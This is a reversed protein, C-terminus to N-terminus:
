VTVREIRLGNPKEAERKLDRAGGKLDFFAVLRSFFDHGIFQDLKSLLSLVVGLPKAVAHECPDISRCLLSLRLAPAHRKFAGDLGGGLRSMVTSPGDDVSRETLRGLAALRATVNAPSAIRPTGIPHRNVPKKLCGGM